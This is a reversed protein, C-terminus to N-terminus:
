LNVISGGILFAILCYPFISSWTKNASNERKNETDDAFRTLRSLEFPSANKLQKALWEGAEM